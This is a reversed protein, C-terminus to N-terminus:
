QTLQELLKAIAGVFVQTNKEFKKGHLMNRITNDDFKGNRHQGKYSVVLTRKKPYALIMLVNDDTVPVLSPKSKTNFPWM